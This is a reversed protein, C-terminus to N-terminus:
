FGSANTVYDIVKNQQKQGAMKTIIIDLHLYLMQSQLVKAKWNICHYALM